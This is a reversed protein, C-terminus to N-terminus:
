MHRWGQSERFGFNALPCFVQRSLSGVHMCFKVGRDREAASFDM